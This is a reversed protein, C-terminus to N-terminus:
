GFKSVALLPFGVLFRWRGLSLHWGCTELYLQWAERKFGNRLCSLAAPRLHAAIIERRARVRPLGGPYADQLEQEVLYRTGEYTRLFNATASKDHRRWAITVPALVQVFGPATGMRMMLDHDEANMFGTRFGGTRLFEDRRVVATGAGVFYGRQSSAFYDAFSEAHTPDQQLGALELELSFEILRACLVAPSHHEGILGAFVSLTWPFWLDDADLFALYNGCATAAGRNRAGGPGTNEQRVFAVRDRFEEIVSSLDDTSGDDVVIVEFDKFEQRLVSGLAGRLLEARNYTPIVVSFFPSESM